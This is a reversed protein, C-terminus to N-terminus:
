TSTLHNREQAHTTVEVIFCGPTKVPGNPVFVRDWEVIIEAEDEQVINYDVFLAQKKSISPM